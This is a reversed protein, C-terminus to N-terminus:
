GSGTTHTFSRAQADIPDVVVLRGGARLSAAFIDELAQLLVRSGLRQGQSRRDVALKAILYGPVSSQGGSQRRTLDIKRVLTPMVASYAIVHKDDGRSWVRVSAVGQNQARNAQSRLWQDLEPQGCQFATLIHDSRIASVVFDTM